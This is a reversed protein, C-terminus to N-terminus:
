RDVLFLALSTHAIGLCVNATFFYEVSTVCWTCPEQCPACPTSCYDKCTNHSCEQRCAEKCVTTCQHDESCSVQCRHECYLTRQCAHKQHTTRVTLGDAGRNSGSAAQCHHCPAACVKSCCSMTRGCPASCPHKAPDESCRLNVFHECTSLKKQVIEECFVSSLNEIM